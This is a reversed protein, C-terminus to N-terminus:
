STGNGTATADGDPVARVVSAASRVALGDHEAEPEPFWVPSWFVPLFRGRLSQAPNAARPFFVVKKGDALAAKAEDWKECVVVDAPPQPAVNAPYVWIEWDNAFETGPLSVTVTFKGPARASALSAKIAGLATLKGTPVTLAPLKGAAVERGQEDKITWVPQANPLDAPGYHAIDATAEFPEDSTYTRKPMRLLPVTPGCFRRYAEPTIFGKSDWFPM